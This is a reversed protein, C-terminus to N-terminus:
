APGRENSLAISPVWPNQATGGNVWDVKFDDYPEINADYTNSDTGGGTAAQENVITWNTGRDTSKSLRFTGDHSHKLDIIIRKVGAGQAMREGPLAVVSSFLNYVNSDTGPTSGSYTIVTVPESM